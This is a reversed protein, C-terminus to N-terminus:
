INTDPRLTGPNKHPLPFPCERRGIPRFRVETPPRLEAPEAPRAARDRRAAWVLQAAPARRAGVRPAAQGADDNNSCGPLSAAVVAGCLSTLLLLDAFARLPHPSTRM